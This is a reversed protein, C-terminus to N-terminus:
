AQQEMLPESNLVFRSIFGDRTNSIEMTVSLISIRLDRSFSSCEAVISLVCMFLPGEKRRNQPHIHRPNYISSTSNASTSQKSSIVLIPHNLVKDLLHLRALCVNAKNCYLADEGMSIPLIIM